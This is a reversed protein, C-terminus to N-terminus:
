QNRVSINGRIKNAKIVGDSPIDIIFWYDTAPLSRGMYKGDWVYNGDFNTDVFIKGYRDFIKITANPTAEIGRIEWTDNYGDGNPSIFNPVNITTVKYFDILCGDERVYVTYTEGKVLNDFRPSTQWIVGNLSYELYGGTGQAFVIIYDGGSEISTIVPQGPNRVEFEKITECGNENTVTLTYYGLDTITIENGTLINDTGWTWVFDVNPDDSSAVVTETEGDCILVTDPVGIISPSPIRTYNIPVVVSCKGNKTLRVYISGTPNTPLFEDPDQMENTGNVGDNLSTHYSYQVGPEMAMTLEFQTLDITEDQCFEIMFPGTTHEVEEGPVLNVEIIEPCRGNKNLRVYITTPSTVMYNNIGTLPAVQNQANELTAYHTYIVGTENSYTNYYTTLDVSEGLCFDIEYPAPLLNIGQGEVFQIQLPESKCEENLQGVVWVSAPLTNFQYDSLQDAPIAIENNLNALSSYYTFVASNPDAFIQGNLTSLDYQYVGDFDDDCLEVAPIDNLLMGPIVEVVVPLDLSCQGENPIFTYTVTGVTDTNIVAPSWTGVIGNISNPPLVDPMAGQCYTLSFDFEPIIADTIEIEITTSEACVEPDPTFTYTFTGATTTNITAPSWTGPIGELSNPLPPAIGNQCIPAISEFTPTIPDTIEVVLTAPETACQNPDPTFTYTTTTTPDYAPSWTGTYGEISTAPLPNPSNECQPLIPEFTPVESPPLCPANIAIAERSDCDTGQPCCQVWLVTGTPCAVGPPDYQFTSGTGLLNGGVPADWWTVENGNGCGAELVAVYNEVNNICSSIINPNSPYPDFMPVISEVTNISFKIENNHADSTSWCGTNGDATGRLTFELTTTQIDSNCFTMDFQISIPTSCDMDIDGYNNHPIGDNATAGSCCSNSSTGDFYFGHGGTEGASCSAGTCTPFDSWGAPMVIGSITVGSNAPFFFGHMWNAGPSQNWRVNSLNVRLTTFGCPDTVVLSGGQATSGESAILTAVITPNPNTSCSNFRGTRTISHIDITQAFVVQAAFFLLIYLFHKKM